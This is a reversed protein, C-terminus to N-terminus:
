ETKYTGLGTQPLRSKKGEDPKQSSIGLIDRTMAGGHVAAGMIVLSLEDIQPFVTCLHKQLEQALAKYRPEITFADERFSRLFHNLKTRFEPRESRWASLLTDPDELEFLLEYQRERRLYRGLVDTYIHAERNM